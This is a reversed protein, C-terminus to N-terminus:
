ASCVEEHADREDATKFGAGCWMCTEGPNVVADLMQRVEDEPIEYTHVNGGARTDLYWTTQGPIQSRYMGQTVDIMEVKSYVGVVTPPDPHRLHNCLWNQALRLLEPSANIRSM